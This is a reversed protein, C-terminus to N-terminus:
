VNKEYAARNDGMFFVAVTGLGCHSAIITGIDWIRVKGKLAPFRQEVVDKLLNADEPCNSHAIVYKGEYARGEQAHEEM